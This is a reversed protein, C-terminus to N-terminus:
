VTVKEAWQKFKAFTANAADVIVDEDSQNQAQLDLNEKFKDWMAALNDGYSSFFSLGKGDAIGLQQAVMKSIIKGGLTSGEIVYLAGYAQLSNEIAPLDNGSALPEASGGLATIDNVLAASKRREAHDPLQDSGIYKDILTELGGFYSYFLQLLNIYDQASRMAKMRGILMKELQQHNTLTQIKLKESLM